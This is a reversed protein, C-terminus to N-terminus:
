DDEQYDYNLVLGNSDFVIRLPEPDFMDIVRHTHPSYIWVELPKAASIVHSGSRLKVGKTSTKRIPEGLMKLVDHKSTIGKIIKSELSSRTFSHGCGAIFALLLVVIFSLFIKGASVTRMECVTVLDTKRASPKLDFLRPM